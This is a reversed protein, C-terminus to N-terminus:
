RKEYDMEQMYMVPIHQMVKNVLEEDLSEFTKAFMDQKDEFHRYIYAQNISTEEGISKTTAKDLGDRAIVHITGDILKLRTDDQKM